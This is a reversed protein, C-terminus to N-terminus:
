KENSFMKNVWVMLHSINTERQSIKVTTPLFFMEEITNHALIISSWVGGWGEGRAWINKFFSRKKRITHLNAYPSDLPIDFLTSMMCIKPFVDYFMYEYQQCKTKDQM